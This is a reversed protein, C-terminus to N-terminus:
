SSQRIRLISGGPKWSSVHSERPTEYCEVLDGIKAKNFDDIKIGVQQGVKAERVQKREIQLSGIRGAYVPGMASIIRFQRGVALIGEQVECGVISGRHSSKFLAIVTARATVREEAPVAVFTRAIQTVDEVLRFIVDYLRVEGGHEKVWQDGKSMVEVNFGLVLKSGTLAMLLDSKSVDGVGSHIIRIQAGPVHIAMIAATLAEVSGTTDCKLVVDFKKRAEEQRVKLFAEPSITKAHEAGDRHHGNKRHTM